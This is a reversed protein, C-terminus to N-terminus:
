DEEVGARFYGAQKLIDLLGDSKAQLMVELGKEQSASQGTLKLGVLEPTLLPLQDVRGAKILMERYLQFQEEPTPAPRGTEEYYRAVTISGAQYSKLSFDKEQKTDKPSVPKWTNEIAWGDWGNINVIYTLIEAYPDGVIERYGGFIGELYDLLEKSSKALSTGLQKMPDVPVLADVIKQKWHDEADLPNLAVKLDPWAVEIEEPVVMRTDKGQRRALDQSYQWWPSYRTGMDEGSTSVNGDSDLTAENYGLEGEKELNKVTFVANPSGGRAMTQNGAMVSLGHAKIYPVLGSFYSHGQPDSIRPDTIFFVNESPIQRPDTSVDQSQFFLYSRNPQDYIVGKLLRDPTFETKGEYKTVARGFSHSPLQEWYTPVQWKGIQGMYIEHIDWRYGKVAEFTVPIKKHIQWLKNFEWLRNIIERSDDAQKQETGNYDEPPIAKMGWGSLAMREVAEVNRRVDLHELVAKIDAVTEKRDKYSDLVDNSDVMPLGAGSFLSRQPAEGGVIKPNPKKIWSLLDQVINAM